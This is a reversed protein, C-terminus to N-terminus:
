RLVPQHVLAPPEPIAVRRILEQFRPDGRLGDFRPEVRLFPLEIERARFGEELFAIAEDAHGLSCAVRALLIPPVYSARSLARLRDLAALAGETRGAVADICGRMSLDAPTGEDMGEAVRTAEALNGLELYASALARRPTAGGRERETISLTRTVHQIVEHFRRALHYGRLLTLNVFRSAPDRELARTSAAAAEAFRGTALCQQGYILNAGPNHPDLELARRLHMSGGAWDWDFLWLVSGLALHAEPLEPGLEVARLAAPRVKAWLAGPQVGRFALFAQFAAVAALAAAHGPDLETARELESIAELPQGNDFLYRGRLYADQAAPDVPRRRVTIAPPPESEPQDLARLLAGADRYRVAPRLAVARAIVPEWAGAAIGRAAPTPRRDSMVAEFGGGDYPRQGTLLEGLVLGLAHVDTFPGTRGYGIQEPAAYDPSFGPVGGTMQLGMAGDGAVIKAIGFDLVKPIPGSPGEVLFINEPKIDRHAVGERHAFAIAEIVPRLLRLAVGPEMPGAGTRRREELLAELTRGQLWELAMWHLDGGSARQTWGFDHVDVIHPHTLRAITQAEAAFTEHYVTVQAPTLGAPTKLVKLAVTRGLATQRARYVIGFGGEAVPREVHFRREITEGILGFPDAALLSDAGL